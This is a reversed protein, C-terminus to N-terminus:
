FFRYECMYSHPFTPQRDLFKGMPIRYRLRDEGIFNSEVMYYQFFSPMKSGDHFRWIGNVDKQGQIWVSDDVREDATTFDKIFFIVCTTLHM